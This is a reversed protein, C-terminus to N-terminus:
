QQMGVGYEAEQLEEQYEKLDNLKANVVKLSANIGRGKISIMKNEKIGKEHISGWQQAMRERLETKVRCLYPPSYSGLIAQV